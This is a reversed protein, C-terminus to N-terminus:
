LGQPEFPQNEAEYLWKIIKKPVSPWETDYTNNPNELQRLIAFDEIQEWSLTTQAWSVLEVPNSLLSNKDYKKDPEQFTRLNAIDVLPVSWTSGDKFKFVVDQMLLSHEKEQFALFEDLWTEDGFSYIFGKKERFFALCLDKYKYFSKKFDTEKQLIIARTTLLNAMHAAVTERPLKTIVSGIKVKM